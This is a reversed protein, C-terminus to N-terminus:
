YFGLNNKIRYVIGGKTCNFSCLKPKKVKLRRLKREFKLVSQIYFTFLVPVLFALMIFYVANQLPFFPSYAAHKIYETRINTSYIYLIFRRYTLPATRGSFHGNPTLHNFPSYYFGFFYHFIGFLAKPNCM